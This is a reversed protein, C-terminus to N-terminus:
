RYQVIGVKRTIHNVCLLGGAYFDNWIVKGSFTIHQMISIEVCKWELTECVFHTNVM